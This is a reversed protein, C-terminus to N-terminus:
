AALPDHFLPGRHAASTRLLDADEAELIVNWSGAAPPTRVLSAHPPTPHQM